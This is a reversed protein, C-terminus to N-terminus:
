QAAPVACGRAMYSAAPERLWVAAAGATARRAGRPTPRAPAGSPRRPGGAPAARPAPRPSARERRAAAAAARRADGAAGRAPLPETGIRAPRQPREPSRPAESLAGAPATGHRAAAALPEELGLCPSKGDPPFGAISKNQKNPNTTPKKRRELDTPKQQRATPATRTRRTGYSCILSSSACRYSCREGHM